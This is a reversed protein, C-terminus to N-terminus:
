GQQPVIGDTDVAYHRYDDGDVYVPLTDLHELFPSPDFWFAESRFVYVRGDAPNVAQCRVVFPYCGNVSVHTDWDISIIQAEIRQGQELLHARRARSHARKWLMGAGVCFFLVGFLCFMLMPMLGTLITVCIGLIIFVSGFISFLIGIWKLARDM